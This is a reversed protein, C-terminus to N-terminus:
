PDGKPRPKAPENKFYDISYEKALATSREARIAAKEQEKELRERWFAAQRGVHWLLGCGCTRRGKRPKEGELRPESQAYGAALKDARITVLTGCDCRCLWQKCSDATPQDRLLQQVVLRGFREGERVLSIRGVGARRAGLARGRERRVCGCSTTRGATLNDSRVIAVAGCDCVCRYRSAGVHEQVVLRGFRGGERM